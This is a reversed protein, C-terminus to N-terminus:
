VEAPIEMDELEPLPFRLIAAIGSLQNLQEGSVHMASFVQAPTLRGPALPRPRPHPHPSCRYTVPGTSAWQCAQHCYGCGARMCVVSCMCVYM